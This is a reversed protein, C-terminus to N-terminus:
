LPLNKGTSRLFSPLFIFANSLKFSPTPFHKCADPFVLGESPAWHCSWLYGEKSWESVCAMLWVCMKKDTGASKNTDSVSKLMVVHLENGKSCFRLHDMKLTYQVFIIFFLHAMIIFSFYYFFFGTKCRSNPVWECLYVYVGLKVINCFM